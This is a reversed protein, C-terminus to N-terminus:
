FVGFPEVKYYALREKIYNSVREPNKFKNYFLDFYEKNVGMIELEEPYDNGAYFGWKGSDGFVFYNRVPRDFVQYSEWSGSTIEDWTIDVPFKLRYSPGDTHPPNDEDYDEVVVFYKDGTVKMCAVLSELKEQYLVLLDLNIIVDFNDKIVKSPFDLPDNFITNKISLWFENLDKKDLWYKELYKEIPETDTSYGKYKDIHKQYDKM